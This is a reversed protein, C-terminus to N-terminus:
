RSLARALGGLLAGAIADLVFHNATAVVVGTVVFPYSRWLTRSLGTRAGRALGFGTVVAFAVHQSPMAAIPNYFRVLIPQELDLGRRALTDVFEPRSRPPATPFAWFVPLAGILAMAAAKREQRFRPSGRRHLVILWGVSLAVNGAAYGINLADTLREHKIAVVQVAPEVDIHLRRELRAVWDANRSARARGRDNWVAHRVGIYAAYCGLGIAVERTAAM